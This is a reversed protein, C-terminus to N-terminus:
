GGPCLQLCCGLQRVADSSFRTPHMGMNSQAAQLDVGAERASGPVM